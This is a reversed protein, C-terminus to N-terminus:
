QSDELSCADGPKRERLHGYVRNAQPLPYKARDEPGVVMELHGAYTERVSVVQRWTKAADVGACTDQLKPSPTSNMALALLESITTWSGVLGEKTVLVKYLIFITHASALCVHILLVVIGFQTTRSDKWDYGYGYRSFVPDVRLWESSEAETANLATDDGGHATSVVFKGVTSGTDTTQNTLFMSASYPFIGNGAIRALGDTVVGALLTSIMTSHSQRVDDMTSNFVGDVTSASVMPSKFTFGVGGEVRNDDFVARELMAQIAEKPGETFPMPQNIANAYDMDITINRPFSDAAEENGIALCTEDLKNKVRYSVQDMQRPEYFVNVPVWQAYISCAHIETAQAIASDNTRGYTWPVRIVIGIAPNDAGVPMEVWTVNTDNFVGNYPFIYDPSPLQRDPTFSPFNIHEREEILSTNFYVHGNCMVEVKPAYLPGNFTIKPQATLLGLGHFNNHAFSWFSTVAGSLFTNLSLGSARGDFNSQCSQTTLVRRAEGHADTFSINSGASSNGFLLNGAWDYTDRFGGAPCVDQYATSTTSITCNIGSNPANLSAATVNSPWLVTSQNFIYFPLAEELFPHDLPYWNLSPIVAIASSPGALMALITALLSLLWFRWHHNRTTWIAKWFAKTWLFDGAGISFSNTILGLPLGSRGVLHHHALHLIIKGLSAVIILEHIKAALQLANLAGGQTIGILIEHQPDKLDMWYHNRFSLQVVAVTVLIAVLHPVLKPSNDWFGTYIAPKPNEITDQRALFPNPEKSDNYTSLNINTYSTGKEDSTIALNEITYAPKIPSPGPNPSTPLPSVPSGPNLADQSELPIHAAYPNFQGNSARLYSRRGSRLLDM